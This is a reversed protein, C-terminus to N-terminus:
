SSLGDFFSCGVIDTTKHINVTSELDNLRAFEMNQMGSM